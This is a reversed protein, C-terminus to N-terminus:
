LSDSLHSLRGDDDCPGDAAADIIYISTFIQFSGITDIVLLYLTIPKLLPLTIRWFQHWRNAGDLRTAEYLSVPIGGMAATILIISYGHGGALTMFILSNMAVNVDGLWYIPGM